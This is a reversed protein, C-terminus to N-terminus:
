PKRDTMKYLTNQKPPTTTVALPTAREQSVKASGERILIQKRTPTGYTKGMLRTIAGTPLSM